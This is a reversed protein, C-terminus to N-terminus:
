LGNQKPPPQRVLQIVIDDAGGETDVPNGSYWGAPDLPGPRGNLDEDVYAGLWVQSASAPVQIEFAGPRDLSAVAVVSPRPGELNRQDGDFVDIRVSGLDYDELRIEGSVTVKPGDDAGAQGPEGRPPERPTGPPPEAPSGAPPADPIAPPPAVPDGPAPSGQGPSGQGAGGGGGPAGQGGSRSELDEAAELIPDRGCAALVVLLVSVAALRHPM